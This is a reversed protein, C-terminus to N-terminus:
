ERSLEGTGYQHAALRASNLPGIAEELKHAVARFGDGDAYDYLDEIREVLKDLTEALAVADIDVSSTM